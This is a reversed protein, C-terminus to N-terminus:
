DPLKRNANANANVHLLIILTHTSHKEIAETKKQKLKNEGSMLFLIGFANPYNARRYKLEIYNQHWQTSENVKRSIMRLPIRAIIIHYNACESHKLLKHSEVFFLFCNFKNLFSYFAVSEHFLQKKQWVPLNKSRLLSLM